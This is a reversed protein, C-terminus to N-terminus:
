GVVRPTRRPLRILRSLNFTRMISPYLSAIDMSVVWDHRGIIPDKVFAGELEFGGGTGRSIRM